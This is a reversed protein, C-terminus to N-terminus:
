IICVVLAYDVNIWGDIVQTACGLNLKRVDGDVSSLGDPEKNRNAAEVIDAVAKSANEAVQPATGETM